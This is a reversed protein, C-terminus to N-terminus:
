RWLALAELDVAFASAPQALKHNLVVQPHLEGMRGVPRREGEPVAKVAAGGPPTFGGPGGTRVALVRAGRGPIFCPTTDPEVELRFGLERLLAECVSRIESYDVRPGIAVGAVIRRERAGTEAAEDLFTVNGVEFIRQPMPASVNISLTDLLGPLLTTRVITQEVSIPNEILVCDDSRPLLLADYNQEPSTLLLTIVEHYGLGTLARRAIEAWGELPQEGGVTMSPVLSPTINHYGYAIAVDECLDIPHMIDNRYAPVAVTLPGTGTEGEVGHGMQRLHRCVDERTLEVGIVRGPREAELKVLQPRLDPTVLERDPQVIRVQELSADRDLEAISTTLVNLCRTVIRDETGTVDILFDRTKGTVRTEESNIIPPMSLVRGEADALLPYRSFSALLRAYARGKPHQELIERPTLASGPKAPDHGLPVFRLEDPAVTRYVLDPGKVTALDYVGISAHKRDRGMAWHLNEQLKMVVKILDDTLTVGRVIACAISPRSCAEGRLGPSAEVIVRFSPPALEYRAPEASEGLYNRFVRALGGPDFMDPRVALLEMRIVQSTGLGELLGPELKFDAGCRDCLVPPNESETIEAVNDCRLCRFRRVTAYGEVDCGLHQLHEVLDERDIRTAIRELLLNVPIGVVPM